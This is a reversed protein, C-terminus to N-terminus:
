LIVKKVFTIDRRQTQVVFGNRLYTKLSKPTCFATIMKVGNVNAMRYVFMIQYIGRGRFAPLVFDSKFRALLGKIVACCFGVIEGPAQEAIFWIAEPPNDMTVREKLAQARFPKVEDFTALRMIM